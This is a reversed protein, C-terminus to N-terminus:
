KEMMGSPYKAPYLIRPQFNRDKLIKFIDNWNSRARLTEGSFDVSLRIPTEKYTIKKQRAARLIREKDNVKALKVVIHRATPRKVNVYRPSRYAEEVCMERENQLNLFNEGIIEKLVNEAGNDKEEVEQIGLIRIKCERM